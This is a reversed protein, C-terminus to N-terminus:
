RFKKRFQELSETISTYVANMEKERICYPPLFYIINGLPRMIIGKRIFFNYFFERSSNLYSDSEKTRIEIAMITGTFRVNKVAPHRAIKQAFASHRGTIYQIQHRCVSSKLLNISALAAACALPNATYSHGHFFTKTDDNSLFGRYIKDTCTTAGLPMFGGTIGKSLCIIDPKQTLYDVAFLRGTRGFGTFVEDAITLINREASFSLLVDLSENGYMQMGAAGMVLPEFIFAAIDKRKAANRFATFSKKENGHFPAPIHIVDFLLSEFPKTFLGRGSVSMSGFTDGHYANEFAIVKTKSKGRNRWYQFSMKLAVEVATSGNDSYFVKRQNGPLIKLLQEGLSVAGEHTFGAFIIHELKAAQEAIKKAIFPHAHGHLNVWWSSIADIYSRGREDFVLAGKGKVIPVPLEATQM